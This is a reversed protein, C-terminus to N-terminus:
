RTVSRASRWELFCAGLALVLALIVIWGGLAPWSTALLFSALVVVRKGTGWRTDWPESRSETVRQRHM